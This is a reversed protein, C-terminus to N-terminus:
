DYSLHWAGRALDIRKQAWVDAEYRLAGFKGDYYGRESLM